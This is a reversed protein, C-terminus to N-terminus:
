KYFYFVVKHYLITIKFACNQYENIYRQKLEKGRGKKGSTSLQIITDGTKENQKIAEEIIKLFGIHCEGFLSYRNSHAMENDDSDSLRSETANPVSVRHIQSISSDEASDASAQSEESEEKSQDDESENEEEDESQQNSDETLHIDNIHIGKGGIASRAIHKSTIGFNDAWFLIQLSSDVLKELSEQSM